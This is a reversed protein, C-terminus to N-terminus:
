AVFVPEAKLLILKNITLDKPKPDLEYLEHM